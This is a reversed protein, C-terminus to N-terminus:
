CYVCVGKQLYVDQFGQTTQALIETVHKYSVHEKQFCKSVLNLNEFIDVFIVLQLMFQYSSLLKKLLIASPIKRDADECFEQYLSQLLRHIRDLCDGRSLWRTPALGLIRLVEVGLEKQIQALHSNRKPSHSYYNVIEHLSNELEQAVANDKAADQCALAHRHAICHSSQMFPNWSDKIQKAVGTWPGTLVAAGDSAFSAVRCTAIEDGALTSTLLNVLGTATTDRAHQISYFRTQYIGNM